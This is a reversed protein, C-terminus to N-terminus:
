LFFFAFLPLLHLLSICSISADSKRSQTVIVTTPTLKPSRRSNAALKRTNHSSCLRDCNAHVENTAKISSSSSVAYSLSHQDDRQASSSQIVQSMILMSCVLFLVHFRRHRLQSM